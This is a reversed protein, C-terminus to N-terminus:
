LFDFFNESNITSVEEPNYSNLFTKSFNAKKNPNYKIEYAKISGSDVAILDIEQQQTTRWFYYETSKNEYKDKKLKEVIVFNEWLARVDNRLELPSFNKILANRIGVDLFYIKKGKKLENDLNKSFSNLTFIIFNQELITIYKEVTLKNIGLETALSSYNIESGIRFALMQTLKYIVKSKKIGDFNLVDKFLFAESLDQLVAIENGKDNIVEPYLGFILYHSLARKQSLWDTHAILENISLPFLQFENKRGVLSEKTKDALEFASSGTAIVQLDQDNDVIRKILLGIDSIMQAEDIVLIKNTGTLQNIKSSSAKELLQQVDPEDGSLWTHPIGSVIKRILSTKGVQRAGFLLIAKKQFLKAVIQKEIYRAIM